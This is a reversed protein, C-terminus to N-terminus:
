TALMGRRPRAQRGATGPRGDRHQLGAPGALRPWAGKGVQSPLLWTSASAREGLSGAGTMFTRGDESEARKRSSRQGSLTVIRHRLVTVRLKKDSRCTDAFFWWSLGARCM